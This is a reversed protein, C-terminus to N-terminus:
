KLREKIESLEVKSYVGKAPRPFWVWKYGNYIDLRIDGKKRHYKIWSNVKEESNRDYKGFVGSDKVYEAFEEWVFLGVREEDSLGVGDKKSIYFSNMLDILGEIEDPTWKRLESGDTKICNLKTDLGSLAVEKINRNRRSRLEDGTKATRLDEDILEKYRNELNKVSPDVKNQPSYVKNHIRSKKASIHFNFGKRTLLRHSDLYSDVAYLLSLLSLLLHLTKM